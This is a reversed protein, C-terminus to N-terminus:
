IVYETKQVLSVSNDIGTVDIIKKYKEKEKKKNCKKLKWPYTTTVLSSAM